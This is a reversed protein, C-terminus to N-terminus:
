LRPLLADAGVAYEATTMGADPRQRTFRCRVLHATHLLWAQTVVASLLLVARTRRVCLEGLPASQPRALVLTNSM